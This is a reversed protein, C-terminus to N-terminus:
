AALTEALLAAFEALTAADVDLAPMLRLVNPRAANLLLRREFARDRLREADASPLVLAWLHGSGRLSLGHKRALERLTQELVRASEDRTAAHAPELLLSTVALAGAAILAHGAFTGGHDGHEFCAVEERALLAAIPLGGGLGKGLTMIDPCIAERQHAFLPGTRAMGTQVEDVILLIGARDCLARLARLYGDPPVVAGAEGQIPEVMIAVTHEDIAREAAALDGFPVKPFGDVAPLFADAFGPKGSASTMALTRGHFSDRATIVRYAGQKHQKGWKRALKIAADNIEAGSNGLWVRPLSSARALREALELAPLNHYAAGVHVVRELQARLADTLVAPNHGLCNVAWGQVFDLYRRGHEDWLYSGQGRVMRAAPKFGLQMLSQTATEM